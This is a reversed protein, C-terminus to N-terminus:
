EESKQNSGMRWKFRLDSAQRIMDELTKSDNVDIAKEFDNLAEKFHAIQVLVQERNTTLIDRWVVPDSAAIRSFDRFGPGGLAILEPGNKQQFIGRIIAYSLVHPLHSVAAFAADHQAPTLETIYSGLSKWIEKALQVQEKGSSEMPTMILAREKYLNVDSHQVGAVEKGAIPHVPVFCHLKDGLTSLASAVIDSKTSGVDMLLANSNLAPAIAEFCSTMSKVPVALLVLDAGEVAQAINETALNIVGMSLAKQKSSESPSYGVIFKAWGAERAALAFSGGMLGCGILAVKEFKM